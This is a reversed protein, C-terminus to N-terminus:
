DVLPSPVSVRETMHHHYAVEYISSGVDSYVLPVIRRAIHKHWSGFLVKLTSKLLDGVGPLALQQSTRALMAFAYGM